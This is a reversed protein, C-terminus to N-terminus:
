EILTVAVLVFADRWRGGPEVWEIPDKGEGPGWRQWKVLDAGIAKAILNQTREDLLHLNFMANRQAM